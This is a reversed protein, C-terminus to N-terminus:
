SRDCALLPAPASRGRRFLLAHNRFRAPMHASVSALAVVALLIPVRAEWFLLVCALLALKTLIVLGKVLVLWRLTQYLELGVLGAGSLVTLGLAPLLREPQVDFVHGGLLTGFAGLHLTRLAVNFARGYPLRRPPDPALWSWRGSGTAGAESRTSPLM